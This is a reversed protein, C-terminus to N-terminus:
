LVRSVKSHMENLTGKLNHALFELKKKETQINKIRHESNRIEAELKSKEATLENLRESLDQEEQIRRQMEEDLTEKTNELMTLTEKLKGKKKNLHHAMEEFNARAKDVNLSNDINKHLNDILGELEESNSYLNAEM